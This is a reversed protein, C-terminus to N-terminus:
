MEYAFKITSYLKGKTDYSLQETMLGEANYKM